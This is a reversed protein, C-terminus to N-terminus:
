DERIYIPNTYARRNDRAFCEARLYSKGGKFTMTFSGKVVPKHRPWLDMVVKGDAILRVRQLGYSDACEYHMEATSGPRMNLVDGMMTGSCTLNIFPADSIFLHGGWLSTIVSNKTLHEVFVGNWIDGIVQYFHGDSNGMGRVIKGQCLHKDWLATARQDSVGYCNFITNAGNIVEMTFDDGLRDLDDIQERTYNIAPFWGTPHLIFPFGGLAIINKYDQALDGKARYKKDLGLIGMHHHRTGAEQGWWLNRYKVCEIKQRVTEHDTIFLFDLGSKDRWAVTEAVSGIGDHSFISHYHCDGRRVQFSVLQSTAEIRERMTEKWLGLVRDPYTARRVARAKQKEIRTRASGLTNTM